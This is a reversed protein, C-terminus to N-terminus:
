GFPNKTLNSRFFLELLDKTIPLGVLVPYVFLFGLVIALLALFLLYKEGKTESMSQLKYGLIMAMFPIVPSYHYLFMIRPSLAWPLWFVLFGLLPIFIPDKKLIYYISAIAVTIGFLFFAIIFVTQYDIPLVVGTQSYALYLFGGFILLISFCNLASLWKKGVDWVSSAFAFFGLLFMLPNGSAFINSIKGDDHYDVYYWVPYLNFPWSWWPSTYDHTAKLGSHYWWMQQNLQTLLDYNFGIQEFVTPFNNNYHDFFFFPLYSLVYVIPPVLLFYGLKRFRPFVVLYLILLFLITLHTWGNLLFGLLNDNNIWLFEFPGNALLKAVGVLFVGIGALVLMSRFIIKEKYFHIFLLLFILGALYLGTWKSAIALGLFLSSFFYKKYQFFILTLLMATVFYIDNMGTRSQVLTLGDLSFVFAAILAAKEAFRSAPKITEFIKRTLFFLLYVSLIGLLAGPLRYAWAEQTQFILMSFAMIEKALPPHTWEYAVGPPPTTWWEWAEQHNLAFEKATFAHYVEDFVYEPPYAINYLRIIAAFVLIAILIITTQNSLHKKLKKYM